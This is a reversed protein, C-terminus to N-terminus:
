VTSEKKSNQDFSEDYIFFNNKGHQKVYYMASDAQKILTQCTKHKTKNSDCWSIGISPSVQVSKGEILVPNELAKIIRQAIQLVFKKDTNPLLITFEDGGLRSVTDSKRVCKVLRKAMDKLLLDGSHHGLTDNVQKFGDLDIFLVALMSQTYKADTLTQTLTEEFFRRNPLNTLPDHYAIFQILEEKVKKDTINRIVIERATQGKYQMPISTLEVDIVNNTLTKFKMESRIVSDFGEENTYKKFFDCLTLLSSPHVFYLLSKGILERDNEAELLDVTTSNAYLLKHKKVIIIAEPSFDVLSQQQENGQADKKLKHTSRSLFTLLLIGTVWIGEDLFTKLSHHQSLNFLHLVAEENYDLLLVSFLVIYVTKSNKFLM